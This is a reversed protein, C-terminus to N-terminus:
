VPKNMSTEIWVGVYPTVSSTNLIATLRPTEIWVGVYPTVHKKAIALIADTNWDVSGCLSHCVQLDERMYTYRKLGCEWMLLSQWDPYCQKAPLRKLGCEWMLLSQQVPKYRHTVVSNWDVSGCLSHCQKSNWYRKRKKNWDVSGCLSHSLLNGPHSRAVLKLGCEWM